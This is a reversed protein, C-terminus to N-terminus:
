PKQSFLPCRCAARASRAHAYIPAVIGRGHLDLTALKDLGDAIIESLLEERRGRASKM